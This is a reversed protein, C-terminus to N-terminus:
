SAGGGALPRGIQIFEFFGEPAFALALAVGVLGLAVLERSLQPRAKVEVVGDALAPALIRYVYGGALLGGGLIPVAWIWQGSAACARLMLWKAEFGGSPPLGMLSLGGLGLTLFTLPLARAAGSFHAIRDHGLAEALVGASLFMAAKAFAHALVQVFGGSWGLAGGAPASALPFVLFLYGIQAVTSYAVLLKLRPQRLALISGFLAACGGLTGLIAAPAAMPLAPLVYFWLRLTLFFSGKVVLGSLVASAAAPANAHAPPLWIHLPFLATKALLGATMLAAATWVLPTAAIREGLLVIDLTGYGGYLLAVGLLYSISGFLAFLLYRLAAALTEPRGDICVLPVAAFTLLELAVYLNFLDAGLFILNLAAWIAQLMIWFTLAGRSEAVGDPTAFKARAYFAAAPVILAAAVMMTASAGDARLAIGLPPPLGGIVYVLPAGSRAVLFAIFGALALGIPALALTIREAARGGLAFSLLIGAVPTLVAFVLLAGGPSATM